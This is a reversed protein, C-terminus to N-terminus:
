YVFYIIVGALFISYWVFIIFPIKQIYQLFLKITIYAAIFSVSAGIVFTMTFGHDIVEPLELLSAGLIVPIAMLFSFRTAADRSFGLSRGAAITMGSRSVGPIVAISQLLGFIMADKNSVEKIPRDKKAFRDMLYFFISGGVLLFAIIMPARLFTKIIDELFFGVIVAPITAVVLLLLTQQPLKTDSSGKGFANQVISILDTRFYIVVALLTGLHLAASFALGPDDFGFLVPILALHGSSSIPLFETFGQVFGLFIVQITTLEM